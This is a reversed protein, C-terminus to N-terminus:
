DILEEPAIGGHDLLEGDFTVMTANVDGDLRRGVVLALLGALLLWLVVSLADYTPGRVPLADLRAQSSLGYVLGVLGAFLDLAVRSRGIDRTVARYCVIGLTVVSAICVVYYTAPNNLVM